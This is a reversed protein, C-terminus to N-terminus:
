RGGILSRAFLGGLKPTGTKQLLKAQPTRGFLSLGSM